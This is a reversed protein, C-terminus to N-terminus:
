DIKLRLREHRFFDSDFRVDTGGLGHWGFTVVGCFTVALFDAKLAACGGATFLVGALPRFFATSGDAAAPSQKRGWCPLLKNVSATWATQMADAIVGALNCM